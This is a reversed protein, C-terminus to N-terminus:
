QLECTPIATPQRGFVQQLGVVSIDELTIGGVLFMAKCLRSLLQGDFHLHCHPLHLSNKQSELALVSQRPVATPQHCMAINMHVLDAAVKRCSRTHIFWGKATKLM